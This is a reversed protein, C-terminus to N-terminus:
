ALNMLWGFIYVAQEGTVVPHCAVISTEKEVLEFKDFVFKSQCAIEERDNQLLPSKVCCAAQLLDQKFDCVASFESGADLVFLLLGFVNVKQSRM